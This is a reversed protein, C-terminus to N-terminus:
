SGLLFRSRMCVSDQQVSPIVAFNPSVSWESGQKESQTFTSDQMYSELVEMDGCLMEMLVSRVRLEVRRRDGSFLPIWTVHKRSSDRWKLTKVGLTM